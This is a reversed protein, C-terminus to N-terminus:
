MWTYKVVGEVCPNFYLTTASAAVKSVGMTRMEFNLWSKHEKSSDVFLITSYKVKLLAEM